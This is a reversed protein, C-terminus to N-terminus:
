TRIALTISGAFAVLFPGPGFSTRLESRLAERASELDRDPTADALRNTQTCLFGALEDLSMTVDQTIRGSDRLELGAAELEGGDALARRDRAPSPFRRLYERWWAESGPADRLVGTFGADYVVLIAAPRLVRAIEALAPVRDLWHLALGVVVLDFSGPRFPLEEGRGACVPGAAGGAALMAVELDLGVIGDSLALWSRSGRGTGCALDLAQRAPAIRRGTWAVFADHLPPRYRAYLAAVEARSFHRAGGPVHDRPM